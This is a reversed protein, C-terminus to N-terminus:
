ALGLRRRRLWGFGFEFTLVCWAFLLAVVAIACALGFLGGVVGQSYIAYDFTTSSYGPGGQTLGFIYPFFAMVTAITVLLMWFRTVPRLMPRYVHWALQTWTAGDILAAESYSNPIASLAASFFLVGSGMITWAIVGVVSVLVIWQNTLWGVHLGLAANLPGNDALFIRFIGGVVIPPLLAPVFLIARVVGAGRVGQLILALLMPLSIWIVLGSTLLLNNLIIRHFENWEYLFRFNSIGTWRAPSIGDWQTFAFYFVRALPALVFVGLLLLLPLVFLLGDSHTRIRRTMSKRPYVALPSGAADAHDTQDAVPPELRPQLSSNAV